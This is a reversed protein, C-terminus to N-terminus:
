TTGQSNQEAISKQLARDTFRTLPVTIMLFLIAAV